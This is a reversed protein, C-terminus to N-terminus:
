QQRYYYFEASYNGANQAILIRPKTTDSQDGDPNSFGIKYLGLAAGTQGSRINAYPIKSTVDSQPVGTIIQGDETTGDQNIVLVQGNGNQWIGALTTFDGNNIAEINLDENASNVEDSSIDQGNDTLNDSSETSNINSSVSSITSTIQTHTIGADEVKPACGTLFIILIGNFFLKKKMKRRRRSNKEVM